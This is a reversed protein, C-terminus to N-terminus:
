KEQLDEEDKNIEEGLNFDKKPRNGIVDKVMESTTEEQVVEPDPSSGSVSEDGYVEENQKEIQKKIEETQTKAM